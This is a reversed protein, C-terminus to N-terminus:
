TNSNFNPFKINVSQKWANFYTCNLGSGMLKALLGELVPLTVSM